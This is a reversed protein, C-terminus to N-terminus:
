FLCSFFHRRWRCDSVFRTHVVFLGGGTRRGAARVSLNAAPPSVLGAWGYFKGLFGALGPGEVFHAQAMEKFQFDVLTMVLTALFIIGAMVRLHRNDGVTRSVKLLAIGGGAKTPLTANSRTAPLLHVFGLFFLPLIASILVLWPLEMQRTVWSISFGTVWPM